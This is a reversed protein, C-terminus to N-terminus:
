NKKELISSFAGKVGERFSEDKWKYLATLVLLHTTGALFGALLGKVLIQYNLNRFVHGGKNDRKQPM